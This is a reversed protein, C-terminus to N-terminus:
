TEPDIKINIVLKDDLFNDASDTATFRQVKQKLSNKIIDLSGYGNELLIDVVHNAEEDSLSIGKRYLQQALNANRIDITPQHDSWAIRMVAKCWDHKDSEKVIGMVEKLDASFETPEIKKKAM